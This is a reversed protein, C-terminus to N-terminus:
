EGEIKPFWRGSADLHKRLLRQEEKTANLMGRELMARANEPGISGPFMGYLKSHEIDRLTPPAQNIGRNKLEAQVDGGMVRQWADKMREDELRAKHQGALYDNQNEFGGWTKIMGRQSSKPASREVQQIRIRELVSPDKVIYSVTGLGDDVAVIPAQAAEVNPRFNRGRPFPGAINIDQPVTYARVTDGFPSAGIPQETSFWTGPRPATGEWPQNTVHYLPMRGESAKDFRPAMEEFQSLPIAGSAGGIAQSASRSGRLANLAGLAPIVQTATGLAYAPNAVSKIAERQPHLASFGLEDPASGLFSKIAAYTLPDPLTNVDRQSALERAREGQRALNPNFGFAAGTEDDLPM